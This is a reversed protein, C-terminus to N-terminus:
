KVPVIGLKSVGKVYIQRVRERTMNYQNGIQELTKGELRSYIIDRERQTLTDKKSEYAKLLELTNIRNIKM